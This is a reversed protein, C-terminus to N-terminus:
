GRRNAKNGCLECTERCVGGGAGSLRQGSCSNVKNWQQSSSRKVRVPISGFSGRPADWITRIQFGPTALQNIVVTFSFCSVDATTVSDHKTSFSSRSQEIQKQNSSFPSWLVCTPSVRLTVSNLFKYTYRKSSKLTCPVGKDTHRVLICQM